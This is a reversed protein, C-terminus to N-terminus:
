FLFRRRFTRINYRITDNFLVTDQPVMGIVARLSDQRVDRIDQGDIRVAGESIDYFRFLIRGITSKGAGSPGVIALTGGAPVHFSVGDLIRRDSDYYFKVDDFVIEGGSVELAPAGPKDKIEAPVQLLDFMTEMDILAQRIERYVTGLLNLPQYLQILYTNIM